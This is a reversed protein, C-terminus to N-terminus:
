SVKIMRDLAVKAKKMIEERIVIEHIESELSILIDELKTMKMDRCMKPPGLSYFEKRPNERKLRAILGEETGVVITKKYSEKAYDVMGGTSFVGDALDIVEKRCEPHVIIAADPHALRAKQVDEKGFREHVYCYGDYPIIEKKTFRSVWNALNRDPVFIIKKADVSNVVEVANASTCCIYSEAKIEATSNVYSVVAADPHKNKLYNLQRPTIMDAMPCGAFRRTILVKKEPSLIKATEAMFRVGAFVIMRAGTEHASRSLDLSDGLFDAIMQVEPIQYNHVLIVANKDEKLKRIEERIGM